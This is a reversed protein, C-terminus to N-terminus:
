HYGFGWYLRYPHPYRWPDWYTPPPVPREPPWLYVSAAQIRVYPYAQQESETASSGILRGGVTIKRGKEFVEPDLFGAHHLILRGKSLDKSRPKQGLGLPAQLALLRSHDELQQVEIVYGGLIVTQGLYGGAQDVLVPFPLDPLAQQTIPSPMVACSGLSVIALVAIM